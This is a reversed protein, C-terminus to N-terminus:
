RLIFLALVSLMRKTKSDLKASRVEDLPLKTHMILFDRLRWVEREAEQVYRRFQDKLNGYLAKHVAKERGIELEVKTLASDKATLEEEVRALQSELEHRECVAAQKQHALRQETEIHAARRRDAEESAARVAAQAAELASMKSAKLAKIHELMQSYKQNAVRIREAQVSLMRKTKSDLKALEAKKVKMERGQGVSFQNRIDNVTKLQDCALHLQEDLRNEEGLEVHLAQRLKAALWHKSLEWPYKKRAAAAAAAGAELLGFISDDLNVLGRLSRRVAAEAKFSGTDNETKLKKKGGGGQGGKQQDGDEDSPQQQDRKRKPRSPPTPPEPQAAVAAAATVVRVRRRPRERVPSAAATEGAAKSPAMEVDGDADVSVDGNRRRKSKTTSDAAERKVADLAEPVQVRVGDSAGSAEYRRVFEEIECMVRFHEAARWALGGCRGCEGRDAAGPPVIAMASPFRFKRYGATVDTVTLFAANIAPDLVGEMTVVMRTDDAVRLDTLVHRLCGDGMLQALISMPFLATLRASELSTKLLSAFGPNAFICLGSKVDFVGFGDVQTQALTMFGRWLGELGPPLLGGSM